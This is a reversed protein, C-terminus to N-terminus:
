QKSKVWARTNKAFEYVGSSSAAAFLVVLVLTGVTQKDPLGTAWAYLGALVAGFVVSLLNVGLAYSEDSKAFLKVLSKGFLQMLLTIVVAMGSVSGLMELSIENM